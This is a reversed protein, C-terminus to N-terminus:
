IASIRLIPLYWLFTSGLLKSIGLLLTKGFNIKLNEQNHSNWPKSLHQIQNLHGIKNLLTYGATIDLFSEEQAKSKKFLKM